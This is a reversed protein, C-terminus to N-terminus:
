HVVHVNASGEVVAFQGQRLGVLRDGLKEGVEDVEDVGVCEWGLFGPEDVPGEEGEFAECVEVEGADVADAFGEGVEVAGLEGVVAGGDPAPESGDGEGQSEM